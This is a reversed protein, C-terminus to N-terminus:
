RVTCLAGLNSTFNEDPALRALWGQEIRATWWQWGSGVYLVGSDSPVQVLRVRKSNITLYVISRGTQDSSRPLYRAHLLQGANCHYTAITLQDPLMLTDPREAPVARAVVSGTEEAAGLFPVLTALAAYALPRCRKVFSTSRMPLRKTLLALLVRAPGNRGAVLLGAM